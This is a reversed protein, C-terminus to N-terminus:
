VQYVLNFLHRNAFVATIAAHGWAAIKLALSSVKATGRIKLRATLGAMFARGKFHGVVGIM